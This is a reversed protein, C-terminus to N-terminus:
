RAVEGQEDIGRERRAAAELHEAYRRVSEATVRTGKGKDVTLLQGRQVLEKIFSRGYGLAFEVDEYTLWRKGPLLGRESPPVFGRAPM